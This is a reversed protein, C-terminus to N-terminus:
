WLIMNNGDDSYRNTSQCHILDMSANIDRFWHHDQICSLDRSNPGLPDWPVRIRDHRDGDCAELHIHYCLSESKSRALLSPPVRHCPLPAHVGASKSRALLSPPVRYWPLPAHVGPVVLWPMHRCCHCPISQPVRWLMKLHSPDPCSICFITGMCDVGTSFVRDLLRYIIRDVERVTVNIFAM